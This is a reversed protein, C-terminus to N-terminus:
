IEYPWVDYVWDEIYQFGFVFIGLAILLLIIAVIHGDIKRNKEKM